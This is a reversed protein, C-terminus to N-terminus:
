LLFLQVQYASLSLLLASELWAQPKPTFGSILLGESCYQGQPIVISHQQTVAPM